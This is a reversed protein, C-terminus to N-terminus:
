NPVDFQVKLVDRKGLPLQAALALGEVSVNITWAIQREGPLDYSILKLFSPKLGFFVPVILPVRKFRREDIWRMPCRRLIEPENFDFPNLRRVLSFFLSLRPYFRCSLIFFPAAQRFRVSSRM